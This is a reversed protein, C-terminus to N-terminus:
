VGFNRMGLCNHVCRGAFRREKLSAGGKYML